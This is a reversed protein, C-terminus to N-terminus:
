RCLLYESNINSVSLDVAGKLITHQSLSAIMEWTLMREITSCTNKSGISKDCKRKYWDSKYEYWNELVRFYDEYRESVYEAVLDVMAMHDGDRYYADFADYYRRRYTCM